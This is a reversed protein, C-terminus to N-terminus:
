FTPANEIRRNAAESGAVATDHFKGDITGDAADLRRRAMEEGAIAAGHFRGDIVGDAADMAPDIDIGTAGADADALRRRLVDYYNDVGFVLFTVGLVAFGTGTAILRIPLTPTGLGLAIAGVCMCLAAICLLGLLVDGGVLVAGM